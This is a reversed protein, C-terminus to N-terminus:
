EPGFVVGQNGLSDRELVLSRFKLKKVIASVQERSLKQVTLRGVTGCNVPASRVRLVLTEFNTSCRNADPTSALYGLNNM